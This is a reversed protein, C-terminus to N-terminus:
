KLLRQLLSQSLDYSEADFMQLRKRPILTISVCRMVEDVYDFTAILTEGKTPLDMENEVSDAWIAGTIFFKGVEHFPVSECNEMYELCEILQEKAIVRLNALYRSANGDDILNKSSVRGSSKVMYTGPEEIIQYLNLNSKKFVAESM